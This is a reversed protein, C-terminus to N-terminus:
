GRALALAAVRAAGGHKKLVRACEQMTSGTTFVDDVLLVSRGKVEDAGSRRRWPRALRLRFANKLNGLRDDRDLLAQRTTYRERRLVERVEQGAHRGLVRALELSQNFERERLRRHHLPVPVLLWDDVAALRPDAAPGHLAAALLAGLTECLWLERGYKFRHVLERVNQRAQFPATAFEFDFDRDACNTCRFAGTINGVFWEGCVACKPERLRPLKEECAPCLGPVGAEAGEVGCLTCQDEFVLRGAAERTERALDLFLSPM